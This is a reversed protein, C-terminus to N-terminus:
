LTVFKLRDDHLWSGNFRVYAARQRVGGALRVAPPKDGSLQRAATTFRENLTTTRQEALTRDLQERQEALSKETDRSIARRGLYQAALHRDAHPRQRQSRDDGRGASPEYASLLVDRGALRQPEGHSM